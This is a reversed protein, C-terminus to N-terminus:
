NRLAEREEDLDIVLEPPANADAKVLGVSEVASVTAPLHAGAPGINMGANRFTFNLAWRGEKLRAAQVFMELLERHTFAISQMKTSM